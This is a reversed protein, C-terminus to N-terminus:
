FMKKIKMSNFMKSKMLKWRLFEINIKKVLIGYVSTLMKRLPDSTLM